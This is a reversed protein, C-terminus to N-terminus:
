VRAPRPVPEVRANEICPDQQPDKGADADVPARMVTVDGPTPTQVPVRMRLVAMRDTACMVGIAASLEEVSSVM